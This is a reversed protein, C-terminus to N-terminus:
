FSRIKDPDGVGSAQWPVDTRDINVIVVTPGLLDDDVIGRSAPQRTDLEGAYARAAPAPDGAKACGACASFVGSAALQFSCALAAQLSLKPNM